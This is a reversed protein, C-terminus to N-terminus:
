LQWSAVSAGSRLAGCVCLGWGSASRRVLLVHLVLAPVGLVCGGSWRAFSCSCTGAGAGWSKLLSSIARTSSSGKM